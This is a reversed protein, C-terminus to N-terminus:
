GWVLDGVGIIVVPKGKERAAKETAMRSAQTSGSGPGQRVAGAAAASVAVPTLKVRDMAVQADKVSIKAAPAAETRTNFTLNVNLGGGGRPQNTPTVTPTPESEILYPDSTSTNNQTQQFGGPDTYPTGPDDFGANTGPLPAPPPAADPTRWVFWWLLIAGVTGGGIWLTKNKM